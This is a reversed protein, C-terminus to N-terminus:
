FLAKKFECPASTLLDLNQTRQLKNWTESAQFKVSYQESHTTKVM